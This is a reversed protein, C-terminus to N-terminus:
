VSGRRTSGPAPPSTRSTGPCTGVRARGVTKDEFNEIGSTLSARASYSTKVVTACTLIVTLTVPAKIKRQDRAKSDDGLRSATATSALHHLQGNIPPSNCKTCRPSCQAPGCGAWAGGRRGRQVLLLGGMLPWHVLKTNSL